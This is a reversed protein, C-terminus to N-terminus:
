SEEKSSIAQKASSVSTEKLKPNSKSKFPHSHKKFSSGLDLSKMRFKSPLITFHLFIDRGCKTCKTAIRVTISFIFRLTTSNFSQGFTWPSEEKFMVMNTPQTPQTTRNTKQADNSFSNQAMHCTTMVRAQFGIVNSPYRSMRLAQSFLLFSTGFLAVISAKM